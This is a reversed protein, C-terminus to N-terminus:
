WWCAPQKTTAFLRDGACRHVPGTHLEAYRGAANVEHYLRSWWLLAGDADMAMVAPEFDPLGGPLVSKTNFGIYMANTRRDICVSQPGHTFTASGSYGTYGPGDTTNGTGGPLCEANYLIDLPWTGKKTGGNGDPQWANYEAPPPRVCSAARPM